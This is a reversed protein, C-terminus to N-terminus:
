VLIITTKIRSIYGLSLVMWWMPRIRDCEISSSKARIPKCQIWLNCMLTLSQVTFVSIIGLSSWFFIYRKNYKDTQKNAYNM